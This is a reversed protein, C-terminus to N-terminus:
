TNESDREEKLISYYLRDHFEGKHNFFQRLTGEYIFGCKEIVRKSALNVHRCSVQVRNFCVTDFAYATVAKVAETVYGRNQFDRGMCYEVECFENRNDVLFFAVMGVCEDPESVPFIGWRYADPREYASIYRGILARADDPTAYVPEGYDNQVEEDGAWNRWASEADTPAFRRLILRDTAITQTGTHILSM